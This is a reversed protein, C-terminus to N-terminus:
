FLKRYMNTYTTYKCSLSLSLSYNIKVYPEIFVTKLSLNKIMIIACLNFHLQIKSLFGITGQLNHMKLDIVFGM